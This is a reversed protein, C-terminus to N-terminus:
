GLAHVAAAAQPINKEISRRPTSKAPLDPPLLEILDAENRIAAELARHASRLFRNFLSRSNCDRRAQDCRRELPDAQWQRDEKAETGGAIRRTAPAANSSRSQNRTEM